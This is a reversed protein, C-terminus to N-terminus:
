RTVRAPRRGFCLAAGIAIALSSISGPEPIYQFDDFQIAVGPRFGPAHVELIIRDFPTGSPGSHVVTGDISLKLLSPSSVIEFLHWNKTRDVSSTQNLGGFTEYYYNGGNSPGLDYDQTYLDANTGLATNAARLHLYNASLEDAYADYVWVSVTGFDPAPFQHYIQVDKNAAVNTTSLELSKAGSHFRTTSFGVSGNIAIPTWFPDLAMAEFGDSFSAAHVNGGILPLGCITAFISNVRLNM